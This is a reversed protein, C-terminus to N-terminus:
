GKKSINKAINKLLEMSNMIYVRVICFNNLYNYWVSLMEALINKFRLIFFIRSFCLFYRFDLCASCNEAISLNFYGISFDEWM